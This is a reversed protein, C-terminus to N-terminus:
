STSGPCRSAMHIQRMSKSREAPHHECEPATASAPVLGCAAKPCPCSDEVEHGSWSRGIHSDERVEDLYSRADLPRNVSDVPAAAIPTGLYSAPVKRYGAAHIAAAIEYAHDGDLYGRTLDEIIQAIDDASM